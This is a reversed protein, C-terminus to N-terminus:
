RYRREPKQKKRQTKYIKNLDLIQYFRKKAEEKIM